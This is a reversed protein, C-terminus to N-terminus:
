KFALCYSIQCPSPPNALKHNKTAPPLPPLGIKKPSVLPSPHDPGGM